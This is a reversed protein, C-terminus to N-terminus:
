LVVSGVDTQMRSMETAQAFHRSVLPTMLSGLIGSLSFPCIQLDM